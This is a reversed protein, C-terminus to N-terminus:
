AVRATGAMTVTSLSSISCGAAGITEASHHLVLTVPRTPELSKITGVVQEFYPLAGEESSAPENGVSWIIVSPHNKDRAYLERVMRCHKELAQDNVREPSFVPANDPSTM